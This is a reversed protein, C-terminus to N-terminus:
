DARQRAAKGAAIRDATRRLSDPTFLVPNSANRVEKDLPRKKTEYKNLGTELDIGISQSKEQQANHERVAANFDAKDDSDEKWGRITWVLAIALLALGAIALPKWNNLLFLPM